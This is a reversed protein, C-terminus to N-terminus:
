RARGDVCVMSSLNAVSASSGRGIRSAAIAPRRRITAWLSAFPVSFTMLASISCASTSSGATACAATSVSRPARIGSFRALSNPSSALDLFTAACFSAISRSGAPPPADATM